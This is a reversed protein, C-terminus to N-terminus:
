LAGVMNFTPETRDAAYGAFSELVGRCLAAENEGLSSIRQVLRALDIARGYAGEEEVAAGFSRSREQLWERQADSIGEMTALVEFILSTVSNQTRSQEIAVAAQNAFLALAEM